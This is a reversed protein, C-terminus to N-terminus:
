KLLIIFAFTDNTTAFPTNTKRNKFSGNACLKKENNVNQSFLYYFHKRFTIFYAFFYVYLVM